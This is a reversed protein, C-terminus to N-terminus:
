SEILEKEIRDLTKELRKTTLETHHSAIILKVSVLFVGAELLLDHTLGKTFLALAFLILTLLIVLQNIVRLKKTNDM